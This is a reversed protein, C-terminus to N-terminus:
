GTGRSAATAATALGTAPLSQEAYYRRLVVAGAALGILPLLLVVSIPVGCWLMAAAVLAASGGGVDWAGEAAVQFRLPCPSRKAMNYLATMEVPVYLCSGLSALANAAVALAAHDAAAARLVMLAALGAAAVPVARGGGGADIRRGVVLGAAAAASAALAMAGGFDLFSEKLSLFLAIQWVFGLGAGMWGDTLFIRIGGAAARFAGPARPVVPVAPTWILPVAALLTAIGSAGFAARPGFGVLIWGTLLPAVVGVAAVIAQRAGIQQGRHEQDGLAAFYAHYTSWYVTDGLAAVGILVALMVGVGHVEAIIPFQAALLVTGAVVLPKLGLRVALPVIAPRIVFRLLLVAAMSALVAAPSVGVSLLYACAFVGGGNMVVAFIGYHLNLLNVVSNRFFAM